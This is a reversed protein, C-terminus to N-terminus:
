NQTSLTPLGPDEVMEVYVPPLPLQITVWRASIVTGAEYKVKESVM